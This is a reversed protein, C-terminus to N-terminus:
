PTDALLANTNLAILVILIQRKREQDSNMGCGQPATWALFHPPDGM